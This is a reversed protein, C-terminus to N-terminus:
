GWLTLTQWEVFMKLNLPEHPLTSTIRQLTDPKLQPWSFSFLYELLPLLLLDWTVWDLGATVTDEM